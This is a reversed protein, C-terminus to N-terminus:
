DGSIPSKTIFTVYEEVQTLYGEVSLYKESDVENDKAVKALIHDATNSNGPKGVTYDYASAIMQNVGNTLDRQTKGSKETFHDLMQKYKEEQEPSFLAEKRRTQRPKATMKELVSSQINTVLADHSKTLEVVASMLEVVNKEQEELKRFIEAVVPTVLEPNSTVNLDESKIPAEVPAEMVTDAEWSEPPTQDETVESSVVKPALDIAPSEKFSEPNQNMIQNIKDTLVSDVTQDVQELKKNIVNDEM